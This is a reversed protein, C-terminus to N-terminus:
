VCSFDYCRECLMMMFNSQLSCVYHIVFVISAIVISQGNDVHYIVDMGFSILSCRECIIIICVFDVVGGIFCGIRVELVVEVVMWESPVLSEM